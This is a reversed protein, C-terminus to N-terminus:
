RKGKKRGGGTQGNHQGQKNFAGPHNARAEYIERELLSQDSAVYERRGREEETEYGRLKRATERDAEARSINRDAKLRQQSTSLDENLNGHAQAIRDLATLLDEHLRGEATHIPAEAITQNRGRAASSAAATGADNVGAANSGEGQRQGLEAFQRGIDALRTHFDEEQRGADRKTDAEQNSLKQVGRSYQRSLDARKRSTNIHIGRLAHELDREAYHSNQKTDVELDELGRHAAERQAQIAPDFSM